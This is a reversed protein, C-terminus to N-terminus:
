IIGWHNLSAETWSKRGTSNIPKSPKTISRKLGMSCTHIWQTGERPLLQLYGWELPPSHSMQNHKSIKWILFLYVSISLYTPLCIFLYTYISLQYLISLYAIAAWELVRAQCIGHVSSGPLSCDRPDSPTPCSQTVESESNVKMCQLLFHCGVGTTKGPSDWPCPLRTPQRRHPRM